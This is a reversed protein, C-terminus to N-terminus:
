FVHRDCSLKRHRNLFFIKILHGTSILINADLNLKNQKDFYWYIICKLSLLIVGLFKRNYM